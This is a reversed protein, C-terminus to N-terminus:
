ARGARICDAAARAKVAAESGGAAGARGEVAWTLPHVGNNVVTSPGVLPTSRQRQNHAIVIKEEIVCAAVGM